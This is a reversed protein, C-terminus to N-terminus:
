FVEAGVGGDEEFAPGEVAVRVQDPDRHRQDRPRLDRQQVPDEHADAEAEGDREQQPVQVGHQAGRIPLHGLHQQYHHEGQMQSQRHGDFDKEKRM